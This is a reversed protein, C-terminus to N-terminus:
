PPLAYMCISSCTAAIRPPAVGASPMSAGSALVGYTPVLGTANACCCQHLLTGQLTRCNGASQSAGAVRVGKSMM